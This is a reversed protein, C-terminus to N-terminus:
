ALVHEPQRGKLARTTTALYDLQTEEFVVPRPPAQRLFLISGGCEGGRTPSAFPASRVKKKSFPANNPTVAPAVGLLLSKLGKCHPVDSM